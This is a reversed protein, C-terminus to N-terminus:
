AKFRRFLCVGGHARQRKKSTTIRRKGCIIILGSVANSM